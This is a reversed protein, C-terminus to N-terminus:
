EKRASPPIEVGIAEHLLRFFDGYGVMTSDFQIEEQGTTLRYAQTGSYSGVSECRCERLDLSTRKGWLNTAIINNGRVTISKRLWTLFLCGSMAIALSSVLLALPLGGSAPGGTTLFFLLFGSVVTLITIAGALTGARRFTFLREM